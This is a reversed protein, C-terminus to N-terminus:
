RMGHPEVTPISAFAATGMGEPVALLSTTFRVAAGPAVPDAVMVTRLFLMLVSSEHVTVPDAIVHLLLVSETVNASPSRREIRYVSVFAELARMRNPKSYLAGYRLHKRRLCM